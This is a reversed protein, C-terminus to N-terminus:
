SSRPAGAQDPQVPPILHTRAERRTLWRRVARVGDILSLVALLGAIAAVVWFYWDQHRVHDQVLQVASGATYFLGIWFWPRKWGPRPAPPERPPETGGVPDQNMGTIM